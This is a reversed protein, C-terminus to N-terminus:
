PLITIHLIVPSSHFRQQGLWTTLHCHQDNTACRLSEVGVLHMMAQNKYKDKTKTTRNKKGPARLSEVGVLYM